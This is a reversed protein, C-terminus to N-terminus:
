RRSSRTARRVGAAPRAALCAPYVPLGLLRARTSGRRRARPSRTGSSRTTRGAHLALAVNFGVPCSPGASTRRTGRPGGDIGRVLADIVGDYLATPPTRRSRSTRRTPSRSASWRRTARRTRRVAKASSAGRPTSTARPRGGAPPLPGTIESSLPRGRRLAGRTQPSGPRDGADGDAWFLRNLRLVLERRPPRLGM